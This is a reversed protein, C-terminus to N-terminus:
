QCYGGNWILLICLDVWLAASAETALTCGCMGATNSVPILSDIGTDCIIPCGDVMRATVVRQDHLVGSFNVLSKVLGPPQPGEFAEM